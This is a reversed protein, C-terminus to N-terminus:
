LFVLCAIYMYRLILAREQLWQQLPFYFPLVCESDTNTAKPLWCTIRMRWITMQPRDAEVINKWTIEYVARNEYFTISCLIHTKINQVVKKQFM